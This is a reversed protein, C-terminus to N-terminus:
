DLPYPSVHNIKIDMFNRSKALGLLSDETISSVLEDLSLEMESAMESLLAASDGRLSLVVPVLVQEAPDLYKM